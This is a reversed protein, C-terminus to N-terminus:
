KVAYFKEMKEWIKQLRVVHVSFFPAASLPCPMGESASSGRVSGSVGAPCDVIKGCGRARWTGRRQPVKSFLCIRPGRWSLKRKLHKPAPGSTQLQFLGRELM